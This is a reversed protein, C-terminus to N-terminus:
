RGTRLRAIEAAKEALARQCAQLQDTLSRREQASQQWAAFESRLKMLETADQASNLIWKVHGDPGRLPINLVDWYREEIEGDPGAVDYRLIPMQDPQGTGLARMLSARLSGAGGASTEVDPFVDFVGRGLVEERVVGTASTHADNIAVISFAIDLVLYPTRIREFVAAFDPPQFDRTPGNASQAM